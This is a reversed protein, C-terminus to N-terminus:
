PADEVFAAVHAHLISLPYTVIATLLVTPVMLIVLVPLCPLSLLVMAVETWSSDARTM